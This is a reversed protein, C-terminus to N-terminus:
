LSALRLIPQLRSLEESPPNKSGEHARASCRGLLFRGQGLPFFM